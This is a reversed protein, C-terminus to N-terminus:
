SLGYTDYLIEQMTFYEEISTAYINCFDNVVKRIDDAEGNEECKMFYEYFNNRFEEM